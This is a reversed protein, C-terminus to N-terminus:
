SGAVAAEETMPEDLLNILGVSILAVDWPIDDVQQLDEMGLSQQEQSGQTVPEDINILGVSRLADNCADDRLDELGLSELKSMRFSDAEERGDSPGTLDLDNSDLHAWAVSFDM